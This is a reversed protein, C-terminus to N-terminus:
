NSLRSMEGLIAVTCAPRGLRVSTGNSSRRAAHEEMEGNGGAQTAVTALRTLAAAQDAPSGITRVLTQAQWM